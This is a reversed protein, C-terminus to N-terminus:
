NLVAFKSNIDMNMISFQLGLINNFNKFSRYTKFHNNNLIHFINEKTTTKGVSGSIAIIKGEYLSLLFKTFKKIFSNVNKIYIINKHVVKNNDIIAFIAGNKIADLAFLSGERNNSKIGIFIDNKNILRSDFVISSNYKQKIQLIKNFINQM